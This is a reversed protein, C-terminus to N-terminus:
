AKMLRIIAGIGFGVLHATIVLSLAFAFLPGVGEIDIDNSTLPLDIVVPVFATAGEDVCPAVSPGAEYPQCSIVRM